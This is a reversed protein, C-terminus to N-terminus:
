PFRRCQKGYQLKFRERSVKGSKEIIGNVLYAFQLDELLFTAVCRSLMEGKPRPRRTKNNRVM